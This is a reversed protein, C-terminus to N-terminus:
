KICIYLRLAKNYLNICKQKIKKLLFSTNVYQIHNVTIVPWITVSSNGYLFISFMAHGICLCKDSWECRLFGYNEALFQKCLFQTQAEFDSKSNQQIRQFILTKCQCIALMYNNGCKPKNWLNLEKVVFFVPINM